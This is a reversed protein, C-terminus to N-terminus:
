CFKDITWFKIEWFLYIADTRRYRRGYKGEINYLKNFIDMIREDRNNIFEIVRNYKEFNMKTKFKRLDRKPIGIQCVVSSNFESIFNGLAWDSYKFANLRSENQDNTEIREFAASKPYLYPPHNSM